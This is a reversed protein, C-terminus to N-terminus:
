EALIYESSASPPPAPRTQPRRVDATLQEALGLALAFGHEGLGTLVSVGVAPEVQVWPRTPHKSVVCSWRESLTSSRREFFAALRDCLMRDIDCRNFPSPAGGEDSGGFVIEGLGNQLVTLRMGIDAAGPVRRQAARRAQSAAEGGLLQPALDEAIALGAALSPGIREAAPLPDTRMRQSRRRELGTHQLADPFLSVLDAGPCVWVRDCLITKGGAVVRGARVDSVAASWRFEVGRVRELWAALRTLTERPDMCLADPVFLGNQLKAQKARPAIWAVDEPRLLRVNHTNDAAAFAELTARDDDHYALYLAGPVDFWAGIDPLLETWLAFTRQALEIPEGSTVRVPAVLGLDRGGGLEHPGSVRDYVRVRRGAASLHVAHAMGLVGAGVVVDDVTEAM